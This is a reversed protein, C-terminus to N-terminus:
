KGGHAFNHTGDAYFTGSRQNQGRFPVVLVRVWKRDGERGGEGGGGTLM